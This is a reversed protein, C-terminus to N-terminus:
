EQPHKRNTGTVTLGTPGRTAFGYDHGLGVKWSMYGGAAQRTPGAPFAERNVNNRYTATDLLTTELPFKYRGYEEYMSEEGTQCMIGTLSQYTVDHNEGGGPPVPIDSLHTPYGGTMDTHIVLFLDNCYAAKIGPSKIISSLYESTCRHDQTPKCDYSGIADLTAQYDYPSSQDYPYGMQNFGSEYECVACKGSGTCSWKKADDCYSPGCYGKGGLNGPPSCTMQYDIQGGEMIDDFTEADNLFYVKETKTKDPGLSLKGSKAEVAIMTTALVVMFAVGVVRSM